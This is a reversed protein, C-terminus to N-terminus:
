WRFFFSYTRIIATIGTTILTGVNYNSGNWSEWYLLGTDTGYAIKSGDGAIGINYYSRVNTELTQIFSSYNTGTWQAYYIYGWNVNVVLINGNATVDVGRYRKHTADPIQTLSSYAAGTWTFYYCADTATPTTNIVVGRTGDKTLTILSPNTISEVMGLASWSTGNFTSYYVLSNDYSACVMKTGDGSVALGTM